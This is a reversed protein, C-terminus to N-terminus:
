RKKADKKIVDLASSIERKQEAEELERRYAEVEADINKETEDKDFAAVLSRAFDKIVARQPPTLNLYSKLIKRDLSDLNYEVALSAIITSDNEIFMEGIGSELWERRVNLKECILSINRDTVNRDGSEYMGIATAKLGIKEGFEAQTLNLEKRLIKIREGISVTYVEQLGIIDYFFESQL